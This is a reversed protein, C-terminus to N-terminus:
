TVAPAAPAAAAAAVATPAATQGLQQFDKTFEQPRIGTRQEEMFIHLINIAANKDRNVTTQRCLPAPCRKIAWIDERKGKIMNFESKM